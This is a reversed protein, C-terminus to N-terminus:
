SGSNQDCLEVSLESGHARRRPEQHERRDALRRCRAPYRHLRHEAYAIAPTFTAVTHGLEVLCSFILLSDSSSTRILSNWERIDRSFERNKKFGLPRSRQGLSLSIHLMRPASRACLPGFGRFERYFERNAPFKSSLATREPSCGGGNLRGNRMESRIESCFTRIGRYERYKAAWIAM